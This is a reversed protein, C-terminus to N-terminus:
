RHRLSAVVDVLRSLDADTNFVHPSARVVTPTCKADMDLAAWVATSANVVVGVDSATGVVAEAPVGDVTFTVIACRRAATDRVTVGPLCVLDTRLREGLGVARQEIAATGIALAQRAAAALGVFAAYPVEFEEFRRIGADVRMGAASSWSTSTADVGPPQFREVISRDVWLLGTGRPGRMFKRGTGTLVSCGLEAVDLDLQGVAQCADVFMPVGAARARAGIAAVPNVNGSHTGIMTVCVVGVDDAIVLADLDVTGDDHSPMLAITFDAFSRTQDLAAYHSSYTLRDILVVGGRPVNGGAVWGWWAKVWAVSDSPVLAVEDARGGILAALDARGEELVDVIRDAAAYGGIEAELRLHDVVADLTAQTPLSSGASLLFARDHCGPTEARLADVDIPDPTV